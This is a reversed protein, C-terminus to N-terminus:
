ILDKRSPDRPLKPLADRNLWLVIINDRDEKPSVLPKM